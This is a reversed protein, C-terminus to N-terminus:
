KMLEVVCDGVEIDVGVGVYMVLESMCVGRVVELFSIM